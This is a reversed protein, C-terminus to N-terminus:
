ADRPLGKEIIRVIRDTKRRAKQQASSESDTLRLQQAKLAWEIHERVIEDIDECDNRAKLAAVINPNAPANGLAVAINRLWRKHGIRRIASGETHKLFEVESWAFLNLLEPQQLKPRIHFDTEETLPAQRNIPCVLQCDDCGYIRNGMLPRLEEPIAGQLEITLYSICRRGDVVYPEVIAGTPCSTICAVCTNCGEQIPIDVPLPLNILLEGLFFWSGADHNLILSHKGTWGIGAKEALPRELIPASDVFPRFDAADFGLNILEASIQDGLKKLRARILKHYDRGGAYRSIYGLNPDTLHTAFGAEPPLYDMRATIVRVTGLHLEQPRARMMGHNAMYAMEGHYGKDLWAQLRSEQATLDTDCIGVQAFGLAKGWAKIQLALTALERANPPNSTHNTVISM